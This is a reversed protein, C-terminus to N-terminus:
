SYLEEFYSSVCINMGRQSVKYIAKICEFNLDAFHMPNSVSQVLEVSKVMSLSEVELNELILLCCLNLQSEVNSPLGMVGTISPLQVVLIPTRRM